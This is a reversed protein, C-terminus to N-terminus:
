IGEKEIWKMYADLSDEFNKNQQATPMDGGWWKSGGGWAVAAAANVIVHGVGFHGFTTQNTAVRATVDILKGIIRADQVSLRDIAALLEERDM